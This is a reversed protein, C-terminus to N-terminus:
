RLGLGIIEGIPEEEPTLQIDTPTILFRKDLYTHVERHCNSCLLVCKQTEKIITSLKRNFNSRDM